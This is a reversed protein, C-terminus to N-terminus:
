SLFGLCMRPTHFLTNWCAFLDYTLYSFPRIFLWRQEFHKTWHGLAGYWSMANWVYTSLALVLKSKWSDIEFREFTAGLFVGIDSFIGFCFLLVHFEPSLVPRLM